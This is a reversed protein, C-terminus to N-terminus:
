EEVQEASGGAQKDAGEETLRLQSVASKMSMVRKGAERFLNEPEGTAGRQRLLQRDLPTLGHVGRVSAGTMMLAGSTATWCLQLSYRDQEEEDKGDEETVKWKHVSGDKCGTFLFTGDLGASWAIGRISGQFNRVEALCEGRLVDWIRIAKDEGGSAVMDGKPSYAVSTVGVSHGTLTLQCEGSEVNWLRVTTDDSASVLQSGQPSYCVDRVVNKHGQLIYCCEGTDISWLRVTHDDSGSAIQKGDPSFDISAIARTHGAMTKYCDSTAVYWLCVTKDGSGSAIIDGQPSFAVCFVRGSHTQRVKQCEGTEVDWLRLVKEASGSAIMNTQPSYAIGSSSTTYGSLIRRCAGTEVDWQRITGDRSSSVIQDRNALYKVSMVGASHGSSVHHSAGSAVDWLRVTRDYSSSAVQDGKPSYTVGTITNSHGTMTYHYAGTEMDWLRLTHDKSGSIINDGKPSQAVSYVGNSHKSLVQRCAWTESDWIRISNDGGASILQDGQLSYAVFRICDEHDALTRTCSGTETEWIRIIHDWGGSAIQNGKPSYAVGLVGKTHGSLIQITTGAVTDWLRVKRDDSGSVIRDGDPSFAVCTVDKTHGNLVQRCTWTELDWIRVTRDYSASAITDGTPSIALGKVVNTHERLSRVLDWNLTSYVKISGDHLGAMLFQGDLSYVCSYVSCDEDLYPLEGFHVGSMQAGSLNVQRLWVGRLNVKRLDAQQLKSSDFVGYSLDAGPIQIGRLDMNIFQVGARVLITISNAAAMRWKKDKKSHEIYSLLQQKLLPEQQVREELFQMLSYDHVFSRWALPSNIDPEKELSTVNGQQSPTNQLEFSFTSSMSGRRGLAPLTASRNKRDQPDFIARALGYELISRHIFRHQNGNRKMPCVERLLQQDEGKFFEVKWSGRDVLRSYEVIPHGGQEKYIAVALRKLYEIGNVAFGEDSLSEFIARAQPTLDKEGLRKKERELWQQVFHDYLGVRTVRTTALYQGPDVMRPLVELALAMLFPNKVLEKLSPILELAEEYDQARWLPQHVSVYQKIYAQVQDFSFSTLVAQQFLASDKRQNRDGPQFRDRYDSGLYETRCSIVMQANWEGPQNLRNSMYLNHMQQSEDYGDCILIFQRYHKMERIQSETFEARRLQKAIMDHEPKDIAPLNISLPIRGTKNVYRQWLEFELERNFTSKGAGSDGLLLFVKQESDLFEKVRDILSFRADDAAQVSSKAQPQIYVANGREKIRQKRLQRLNGEVDPRNQVRDLLSPTGLESSAIKLPYLTPGKDRSTRYLARKLDDGNTELEQLLKDAISAHLQAGTGSTSSLQMLINLIWQKVSAQQGWVQDNRYIEGLFEIASRRTVADWSPNAAMEGLRQCVGWQFAPDLRCPAQCVLEKFTALEGDQILTDAGRLASYWDRKRDFSLGEKLCELFGRGGEALSSVDECAIKVVEVVKSIGDLGRQIDGLGEIFKNLDLGKVASVLGSVGKVVKSTRRMAAQWATENDPVCLLAQFAYAAQYVLYPDSSGKLGSLYSSLPEHLKERDLGTVKTDAMADLVHSMTFTLQHIHEASQHHTGMLRTSVLQLIKVLDDAGLHGPDAGQIMLGLGELQYFNLLGSHDIGSYFESLLDHFSDKSLVPALAVVETVAKADKLEDRKFARIVETAMGNLREQEDTDKVIAQLWKQATPDIVTGPSTSMQLLTLCCALQPTSNLREDPEPLSFITTPPHINDAFINM